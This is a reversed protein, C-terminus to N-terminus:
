EAYMIRKQNPPIIPEKTNKLYEIIADRFLINFNTYPKDKLFSM